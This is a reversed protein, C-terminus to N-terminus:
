TARLVKKYDTAKIVLEEAKAKAEKSSSLGKTVYHSEFYTSKPNYRQLYAVYSKNGENQVVAMVGPMVRAEHIAYVGTGRCKWKLPQNM